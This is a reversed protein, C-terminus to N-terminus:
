SLMRQVSPEETFIRTLQQKNGLGIQLGLAYYRPGEAHMGPARANLWVNCM